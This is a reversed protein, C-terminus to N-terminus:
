WWRRPEAARLAQVAELHGKRSARAAATEGFATKARVDAGAALLTQVVELNGGESASILATFGDPATVVNM